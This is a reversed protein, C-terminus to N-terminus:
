LLALQDPSKRAKGISAAVPTPATGSHDAASSNGACPALRRNVELAAALGAGALGAGTEKSQAPKDM